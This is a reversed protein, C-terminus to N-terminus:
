NLETISKCPASASFNGFRLLTTTRISAFVLVCYAVLVFTICSVLLTARGYYVIICGTVHGSVPVAVVNIAISHSVLMQRKLRRRITTVSVPDSTRAHTRAHSLNPPSTPVATIAAARRCYIENSAFGGRVCHDFRGAAM